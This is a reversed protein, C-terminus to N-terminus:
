LSRNKKKERKIVKIASLLEERYDVEVEAYEEKSKEEDFDEIEM